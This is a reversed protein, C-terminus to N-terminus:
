CDLMNLICTKAISKRSEMRLTPAVSLHLSGRGRKLCSIICTTMKGQKEQKEGM